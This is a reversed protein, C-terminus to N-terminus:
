HINGALIEPAPYGITVQSRDMVADDGQGVAQGTDQCGQRAVVVPFPQCGEWGDAARGLVQGAEIIEAGMGHLYADTGQGGSSVQDKCRRIGSELGPLLGHRGAAEVHCADGPDVAAVVVENQVAFGACRDMVRFDAEPLCLVSITFSFGQEPQIVGDPGVQVSIEAHWRRVHMGPAASPQFHFPPTITNERIGAIVCFPGIVPGPDVVPFFVFTAVPSEEQEGVAADVPRSLRDM